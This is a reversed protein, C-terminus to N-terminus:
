GQNRIVLELHDGENVDIPDAAFSGGAIFDAEIRVVNSKWQIKFTESTKGTVLGVRTRGSGSWIAYVRADNFDNNQVTLQIDSSVRREMFGTDPRGACGALLAASLVVIGGASRNRRALFSKM